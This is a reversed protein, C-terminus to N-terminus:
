NLSSHIAFLHVVINFTMVISYIFFFITILGLWLVNDCVTMILSLVMALLHLFVGLTMISSLESFIEPHDKTNLKQGGITYVIALVALILGSLSVSISAMNNWMQKLDYLCTQSILLCLFVSILVSFVLCMMMECCPLKSFLIKLIGMLGKKAVNRKGMIDKHRYTGRIRCNCRNLIFFRSFRYRNSTERELPRRMVWNTSVLLAYGVGIHMYAIIAIGVACYCHQM